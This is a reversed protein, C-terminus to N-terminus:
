YINNKRSIKTIKSFVVYIIFQKKNNPFTGIVRSSHDLVWLCLVMSPHHVSLVGKKENPEQEGALRGM